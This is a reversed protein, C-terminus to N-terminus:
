RVLELAQTATAQTATAAAQPIPLQALVRFGGRPLPGASLEGGCLHVRERMGVLGHGAGHLGLPGRNTRTGRPLPTDPPDEGRLPTSPAAFGGQSAGNDTVAITLAKEGYEVSVACRAGGGAHKVVNTLAEQIIRYASLGVGAPM